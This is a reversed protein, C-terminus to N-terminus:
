VVNLDNVVNSFVSNDLQNSTIVQVDTHQIGLLVLLFPGLILVVFLLLCCGGLVSAVIVAV